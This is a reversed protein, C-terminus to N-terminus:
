ILTLLKRAKSIKFISNKVLILTVQNKFNKITSWECNKKTTKKKNKNRLLTSYFKNFFILQFFPKLDVFFFYTTTLMMFIINLSSNIIKLFDGHIFRLNAHFFIIEVLILHTILRIIFYYINFKTKINDNNKRCM